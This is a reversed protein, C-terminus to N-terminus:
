LRDRVAEDVEDFEAEADRSREPDRDTDKDKVIDRDFELENSDGVCCVDADVVSLEERSAEPEMDMDAVWAVEGDSESAIDIVRVKVIVNPLTLSSIDRERVTVYPERESDGLPTPRDLDRVAERPPGVVLAITFGVCLLSWVAVGDATYVALRVEVIVGGGRTVGVEVLEGVIGAEAV